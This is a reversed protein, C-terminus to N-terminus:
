VSLCHWAGGCVNGRVNVKFILASDGARCTYTAADSLRARRISLTRATDAATMTVNDCAQLEVGDVYWQVPADARSVECELVLPDHEVM